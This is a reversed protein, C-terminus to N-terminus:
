VYKIGSQLLQTIVFIHFRFSSNYLSFRGYNIPEAKFGEKEFTSRVTTQWLAFDRIGHVLVIVHTQAIDGGLDGKSAKDHRANEACASLPVTDGREM